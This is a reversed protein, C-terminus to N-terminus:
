QQTRRHMHAAAPYSSAALPARAWLKLRQYIKHFQLIKVVKETSTHDEEM